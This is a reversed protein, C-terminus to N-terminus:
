HRQFEARASTEPHSPISGVHLLLLTCHERVNVVRDNSTNVALSVRPQPRAALRLLGLGTAQRLDCRCVGRMRKPCKLHGQRTKVDEAALHYLQMQTRGAVLHRSEGQKRPNRLAPHHVSAARSCSRGPM